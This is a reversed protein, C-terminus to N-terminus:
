EQRWLYLIGSILLQGLSVVFGSFGFVYKLFYMYMTLDIM